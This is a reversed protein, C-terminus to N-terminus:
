SIAEDPKVSRQPDIKPADCFTVGDIAGHFAEAPPAGLLCDHIGPSVQACVPRSLFANAQIKPGQGIGQGHDFQPVATKGAAATMPVATPEAAAEATRVNMADLATRRRCVTEDADRSLTANDRVGQGLDHHRLTRVARLQQPSESSGSVQVIRTEPPLM